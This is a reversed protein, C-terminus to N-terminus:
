FKTVKALKLFLITIGIWFKRTKLTSEYYSKSTLIVLIMYIIKRGWVGVVM